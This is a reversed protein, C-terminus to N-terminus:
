AQNDGLQFNSSPDFNVANGFMDLEFDPSMTDIMNLKQQSVLNNLKVNRNFELYDRLDKDTKAKATLQRQEFNLNNANQLQHEADMQNINFLEASQAQKANTRNVGQIATAGATTTAALISSLAAARQNAPLSELNGIALLGQKNIETLQDEVGIKIPDILGRRAKGLLHPELAGPPLLSQDPFVFGKARKRGRPIYSSTLDEIEEEKEVEPIDVEKEKTPLLSFNIDPNDTKIKKAREIDEPTLGAEAAKEPDNLVQSLHTIGQAALADTKEINFLQSSFGPRSSTFDGWKSDIGRWSEDDSFMDKQVTAEYHKFEEPSLTQKAYNINAQAQKQWDQQFGGVNEKSLVGAELYKQYLEPNRLKISAIREEMEADDEGYYLGSKHQKGRVNGSETDETGTIAYKALEENDPDGLEDGDEYYGKKEGGLLFMVKEMSLDNKEAIARIKSESVGGFKFEKKDKKPKPKSEQIDFLKKFMAAQEEGLVKKKGEIEVLKANIYGSNVTQTKDDTTKEEKELMKFFEVQSDNLQDLGIKKNYKALVSSYTDKAKVNLYYEKNLDKALTKGIELNDSLVQTKDPLDLDIGGNEHSDGVAKRIQNNINLFENKEVESDAKHLLRTPLEEIYQGTLNEYKDVEAGNEYIKKKNKASYGITSDANHTGGVKYEPQPAGQQPATQQSMVFGKKTYEEHESQMTVEVQDGTKPNVMVHPEIAKDHKIIDINALKFKKM